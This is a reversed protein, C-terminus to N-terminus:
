LTSREEEIVDLLMQEYEALDRYLKFQLSKKLRKLEQVIQLALDLPDQEKGELSPNWNTGALIYEKFMGVCWNELFEPLDLSKPQYISWDQVACSQALTPNSWFPYVVVQEYECSDANAWGEKCHLGWVQELASVEKVFEKHAKEIQEESQSM